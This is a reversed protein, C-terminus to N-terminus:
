ETNKAEQNSDSEQDGGQKENGEGQNKEGSQEEAAKLLIEKMKERYLPTDLTQKITEELHSRFQQSKMLNLMQENIEPNQLLDIMQKQFEADNMLSKMLKEQEETMSQAYNEVFDSENFLNKWMTTGKESVLVNNISEKVIDSEIVLESKIKEDLLTEKLAKKGDDTQLIDLVMKKVNEYEVEKQNSEAGCSTLLGIIIFFLLFLKIRFMHFDEKRRKKIHTLKRFIHM